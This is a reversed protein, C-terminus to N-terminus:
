HEKMEISDEEMSLSRTLDKFREKSLGKTLIDALQQETSIYKINIENRKVKERIHHFRVQIHKTRKHFSPNECLSIAGQNDM